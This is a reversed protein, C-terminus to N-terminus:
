AGSHFSSLTKEVTTYIIQKRSKEIGFDDLAERMEILIRNPEVANKRNIKALASKVEKREMNNLRATKRNRTSSKVSPIIDDKFHKEKEIVLTGVKSKICGSSLCM